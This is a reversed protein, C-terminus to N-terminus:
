RIRMRTRLRCPICIGLYSRHVILWCEDGIIELCVGADSVSAHVFSSMCLYFIYGFVIPIAPSSHHWFWSASFVFFIVAPIIILLGTAINVPRSRSNQFRGRGCFVTNGAFYEYNYGLNSAPMPEEAQVYSVGPSSAASSLKEVGHTRRGPSSPPADGRSPLLFSSRFSHPSKSPLPLTAPSMYSKDISISLGKTNTANKQLPRMSESVSANTHHGHTPSTTASREFTDQGTMVTGRSPPLTELEEHIGRSRPFTQTSNISGQRALDIVSGDESAGPQAYQRTSAKQAQLRQSSMPKFFAHSTLSPVHSRSSASQPRSTVSTVSGAVSPRSSHVRLPAAAGRRSNSSRGMRQTSRSTTPRQSGAGDVQGGLSLPSRVSATTPAPANGDDSAIDTMRSSLVSAGDGNDIQPTPFSTLEHPSTPSGRTSMSTM